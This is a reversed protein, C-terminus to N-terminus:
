KRHDAKCVEVQEAEQVESIQRKLEAVSQAKRPSRWKIHNDSPTQVWFSLRWLRVKSIGM